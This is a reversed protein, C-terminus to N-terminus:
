SVYEDFCRDTLLGVCVAEDALRVKGNRSRLARLTAPGGPERPGLANYRMTIPRSSEAAVSFATIPRWASHSACVDAVHM